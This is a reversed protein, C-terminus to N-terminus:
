GYLKRIGDALAKVRERVHPPELVEVWPGYSLVYGYVWDDEPFSIRGELFGDGDVVLGGEPFWEEARSRVRPDFRLVLEVMNAPQFWEQEWPADDLNVPVREFSSELVAVDRMRGLKFLRFGQRLLCFAYLYWSNGKLVLAYPDVSRETAEGNAGGYRFAVRKQTRVAQRLLGLCRQLGPNSGWPSLDVIVHDALSGLPAVEPLLGRLKELAAEAGRDHYTMAGKLAIFVSALEEQTLFRKDIRYGDAIGIGGGAGQYTVVPIGAQNIAEIDRYITRVSVEFKEALEQAQVRRRNALLMAIALLRDLKM